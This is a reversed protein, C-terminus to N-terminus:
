DNGGSGRNITHIYFSGGESMWSCSDRGFIFEQCNLISNISNSDSIKRKKEGVPVFSRLSVIKCTSKLDLFKQLISNNLNPDFIYNNVFVVDAVKMIDDVKKSNLFDAKFLDIKGHPRAYFKMRTEFEKQQALALKSTNELIEVGYSDCMCQASIQLVVNGIGSGQGKKIQCQNILQNVFKPKIEGYVNNSFGSQKLLNYNPSIARAYSQELVHSVFEFQEASNFYDEDFNPTSKNFEEDLNEVGGNNLFEKFEPTNKVQKLTSNFEEVALKLDKPLKKNLAKICKRIIGVKSDGFKEQLSRPISTKAIQQISDRIDLCPNYDDPDKPLILPFKETLNTGPYCLYVTILEYKLLQKDNTNYKIQTGLLLYDDQYKLCIDESQIFKLDIEESREFYIKKKKKINKIKKKALTEELDFKEDLLVKQVSTYKKVLSKSTAPVTISESSSQEGLKMLKKIKLDKMLNKKIEFKEINSKPNDNDNLVNKSVAKKNITISKEYASDTPSIQKISFNDESYSNHQYAESQISVPNEAKIKSEKYIVSGYSSSYNNDSDVNKLTSKFKKNKEESQNKEVVPLVRKYFVRESLFDLKSENKIRTHKKLM